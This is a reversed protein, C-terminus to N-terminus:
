SESQFPLRFTLHDPFHVVLTFPYSAPAHGLVVMTLFEEVTSFLSGIGVFAAFTKAAV